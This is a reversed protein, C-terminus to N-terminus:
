YNISVAPAATVDGATVTLNYHGSGGSTDLVVSGATFGDSSFEGASHDAFIAAGCSGGIPQSFYYALLTAVLARGTLSAPVIVDENPEPCSGSGSSYKKILTVQTADGGQALLEAEAITRPPYTVVVSQATHAHSNQEPPTTTARSGCGAITGGLVVAVVLSIAFHPVKM